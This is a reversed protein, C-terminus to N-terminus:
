HTAFVPIRANPLPRYGSIRGFYHDFGATAWMSNACAAVIEIALQEGPCAHAGAGFTLNRRRPRQVEFRDPQPNLAEDHNASALVLLLGEGRRLSQRALTLDEAAFRRTNHIPADWRVVEAVLVRAFDPSAAVQEGLESRQQLLNVTNGLLGATADLSQQMLAIRNAAQVPSLGQEAGQTLLATAAENARAVAEASADAAIGATFDHVWQTTQKLQSNSVGLLRAMVQVPLATLFDNVGLVPQLEATAQRSIEAVQQLTWRRASQQVQAKHTAHFAGDSMRVLNAFVEGAPSGLLARPVPEAPPRVRLAPSQFAEDIVAYSSAVWLKLQDDFYLPREERLQRYYSYPDAHSAAEVAHAPPRTDLARM